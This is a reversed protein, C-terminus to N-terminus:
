QAGQLTGVTDTRTIGPTAYDGGFVSVRRLEVIEVHSLEVMIADLSSM